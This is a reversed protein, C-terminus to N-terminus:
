AVSVSSESVSELWSQIEEQTVLRGHADWGVHFHNPFEFVETSHTHGHLLPLGLNPLRFQEYRPEIGPRDHPWYPFHSLLYNIGNYRRRMFPNITEFVRLWDRQKRVASRDIGSHVPDHNGTILHKTGPRAAIWDLAYQKGSISIDGLVYVTDDRGVQEDWIRAIMEDHAATDPVSVRLGFEGSQPHEHTFGRIGAVLRHDIHLDSTYFTRTM